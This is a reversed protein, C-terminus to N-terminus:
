AVKFKKKDKHTIWQFIWKGSQVSPPLRGGPFLWQGALYFNDLGKVVPKISKTMNKSTPMFGEFAGKWVGTYRIDTLPTAVDVVEIHGKVQPYLMQLKEVADASIREKERGYEEKSLNEWLDIPSEFLMKMVCKGRPTIVPDHNYNSVGYGTKLVTSGIAEGPAMVQYTHFASEISRDIGFSVQVIPKFLPWGSFAEEIQPTLHRGDLMDYMLAHLDCAGIIYDAYKVTGDALRVGVARKGETLIKEVRTSGSFTGGLSIYREYMRQTFPMSGGVPYGANKQSFWVLIFLFAIASFDEMSSSIRLLRDKLLDSKFGLRNFYEDVSKRGYKMYIRLAPGSKWAFKIFDLLNREFAPKEFLQMTCMKRMDNCMRRIPKGDEPALDLLYQQWRDIDSYIIFDEGNAMRMTVYTPPNVIVTNGTLAGTEQWIDHFPGHSSGVLWHICYDFIYGKRKWATCQGGPQSHMELIETRYGNLQGYIGASLGAVGGGIIIVDKKM